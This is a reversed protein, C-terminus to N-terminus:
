SQQADGARRLPFGSGYLATGTNPEPEGAFGAQFAALHCATFRHAFETTAWRVSTTVLAQVLNALLNM